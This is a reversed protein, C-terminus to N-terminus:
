FNMQEEPYNIKNFTLGLINVNFLSWIIIIHFNAFTIKQLQALLWTLTPHQLLQKCKIAGKLREYELKRYRHMHRNRTSHQLRYATYCYKM